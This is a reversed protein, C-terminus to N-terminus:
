GSCGNCRHSRLCGHKPFVREPESAGIVFKLDRLFFVGGFAVAVRELKIECRLLDFFLLEGGENLIQLLPRHAVQTNFGVLMDRFVEADENFASISDSFLLLESDLRVGLNLIM